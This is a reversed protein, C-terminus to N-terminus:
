DQPFLATVRRHFSFAAFYEQFAVPVREACACETARIRSPCPLSAGADKFNAELVAGTETGGEREDEGQGM